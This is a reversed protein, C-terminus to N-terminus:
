CISLIAHQRIRSVVSTYTPQAPAGCSLTLGRGSNIKNNSFDSRKIDRVGSDGVSGQGLLLKFEHDLYVQSSVTLTPHAAWDSVNSYYDSSLYGWVDVGDLGPYSDRGYIDKAPDSPDVPLPPTPPDDHPDAGGLICFTPYWDVISIRLNSSTGQKSEPVLGGAVFAMVRYGGQWNSHKEGRLPYNIGALGNMSVGGLVNVDYVAHTCM